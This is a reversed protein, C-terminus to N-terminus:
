PTEELAGVSPLARTVESGPVNLLADTPARWGGLSADTSFSAVLREFEVDPDPRDRTLLVAALAAAVAAGTLGGTWWVRRRAARRPLAMPSEAGAAADSRARELMARFDPAGEAETDSRLRQFRERLREDPTL